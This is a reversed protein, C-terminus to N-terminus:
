ISKPIQKARNSFCAKQVVVSPIEGTESGPCIYALNEDPVHQKSIVCCNRRVGMAPPVGTM